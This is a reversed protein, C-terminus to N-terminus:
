KQLKSKTSELHLTLVKSGSSCSALFCWCFCFQHVYNRTLVRGGVWFLKELIPMSEPSKASSCFICVRSQLHQFRSCHPVLGRLFFFFQKLFETPWTANTSPFPCCVDWTMRTWWISDAGSPEKLPKDQKRLTGMDVTEQTDAICYSVSSNSWSHQRKIKWKEENLDM